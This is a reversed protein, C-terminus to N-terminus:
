GLDASRGPSRDREVEPEAGVLPSARFFAVLDEGTAAQGGALLSALSQRAEEARAGGARLAAALARVLPVDEAPLTIELRKAGTTKARRRHRVVREANPSRSGAEAAM